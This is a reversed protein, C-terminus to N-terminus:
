TCSPGAELTNIDGAVIRGAGVLRALEALCHQQGECDGLEPRRANRIARQVDAPSVLAAGAVGTLGQAVAAEIAALNRPKEVLAGLPALAVRVAPAARVTAPPAARATAPPAAKAASPRGLAGVLWLIGAFAAVTRM